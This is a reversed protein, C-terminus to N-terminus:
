RVWQGVDRRYAERTNPSFRRNALWREAFDAVAGLETLAGGAGFVEVTTM